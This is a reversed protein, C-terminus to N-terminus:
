KDARYECKLSAQNNDDYSYRVFITGSAQKNTGNEEDQAIIEKLASFAMNIKLDLNVSPETIEIACGYSTKLCITDVRGNLESVQGFKISQIIETMDQRDLYKDEGDIKLVAYAYLSNYLSSCVKARAETIFDGVEINEGLNFVQNLLIYKEAKSKDTVIELVKCDEDLIYYKENDIQYYLPTRNSLSIKVSTFSTLHVEARAYPYSKEINGTVQERDVSFISKGKKLGSSAGIEDIQASYCFEENYSFKINRVRFVAGFLITFLLVIGLLVSSTIIVARKSM